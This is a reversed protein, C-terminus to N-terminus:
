FYIYLLLLMWISSILTGIAAGSVGMGDFDAWFWLKSFDFFSIRELGLVNVLGQKGYILGANLYANIM